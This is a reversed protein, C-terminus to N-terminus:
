LNRGKEKESEKDELQQLKTDTIVAASLNIKHCKNQPSKKLPKIKDLYLKEFSTNQVNNAQSMNM